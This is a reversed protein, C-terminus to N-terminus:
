VMIPAKKLMPRHENKATQMPFNDLLYRGSFYIFIRAPDTNRM